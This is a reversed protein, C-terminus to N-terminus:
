SYRSVRENTLNLSARPNASRRTRASSRTQPLQWNWIRRTRTVQQVLKSQGEMGGQNKLSAQEVAHRKKRQLDVAHKFDRIEAMLDFCLKRYHRVPELTLVQTRGSMQERYKERENIIEVLNCLTQSMEPAEEQAMLMMVNSMRVAKKHQRMQNRTYSDITRQLMDM